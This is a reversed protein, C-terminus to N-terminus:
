AVSLCPAAFDGESRGGRGVRDVARGVTEFNSGGCFLIRNVWANRGNAIGSGMRARLWGTKM